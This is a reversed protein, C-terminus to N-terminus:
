EDGGWGNSSNIQELQWEYGNALNQSDVLESELRHNVVTLRTNEILMFAFGIVLVLFLIYTLLNSVTEKSM